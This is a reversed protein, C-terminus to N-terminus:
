KYMEKGKIALHRSGNITHKFDIRIRCRDPYRGGFPDFRIRLSGYIKGNQASFYYNQSTRIVYDASGAQRSVSTEPQYGTEPALNLYWDDDAASQIGGKVPAITMSWSGANRWEAENPDRDEGRTCSVALIGEPNFGDEHSWYNKRPDQNISWTHVGNNALVSGGSYESDYVDGFVAERWVKFIFPNKRQTHDTWGAGVSQENEYPDFYARVSLGGSPSQVIYESIDPHYIEISLDQGRGKVKFLGNKDTTYLGGGSGPAMPGGGGVSARIEAGELPEGHQDVVKGYFKIRALLSQAAFFMGASSM